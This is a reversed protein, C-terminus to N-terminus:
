STWLAAVFERVAFDPAFHDLSGKAVRKSDQRPRFESGFAFLPGAWAAFGFRHKPWELEEIAFVFVQRLLM